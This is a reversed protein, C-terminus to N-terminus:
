TLSPGLQFSSRRNLTFRYFDTDGPDISETFTKFIPSLSTGQASDFSNGITDPM